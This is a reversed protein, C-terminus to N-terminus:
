EEEQGAVDQQYVNEEEPTDSEADYPLVAPPALYRGESFVIGMLNFYNSVTPKSWGTLAAFQGMSKIENDRLTQYVFDRKKAVTDATVRAKKEGKQKMLNYAMEDEGEPEYIEIDVKFEYKTIDFDMQLPPLPEGDKITREVLISKGTKGLPMSSISIEQWANLLQSGLINDRLRDGVANKRMHHVLLFTCNYEERWRRLVQMHFPAKQFNDDAPFFAYFPDLTVLIPRIPKLWDREFAAVAEKDTFNFYAFREPVYIDLDQDIAPYQFKSIHPEGNFAEIKWRPESGAILSRRNLFQRPHDELNIKISPGTKFVEFHGLFPNGTALSDHMADVFWTKYSGPPAQIFGLTEETLWGDILPVTEVAAYKELAAKYRMLTLGGPIANRKEEEKAQRKEEQKIRRDEERQGISNVITIIETDTVPPECYTDNQNSLISYVRSRDMGVYFLKGAMHTLATNREGDKIPSSWDPLKTKKEKAEADAEEKRERLFRKLAEPLEMLPLEKIVRYIGGTAHVSGPGVNYSGDSLFDLGPLFGRETRSYLGDYQFMIHFGSETEEPLRGTRITLTEPLGNPFIHNLSEIGGHRPDVDLCCHNSAVGMAIGWNAKPFIRHWSELQLVDRTAEKWGHPCAPHKGMGKTCPNTNCSCTGDARVYHLPFIPLRKELFWSLKEKYDM